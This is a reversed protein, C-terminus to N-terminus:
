SQGPRRGPRRSARGSFVVPGFHEYEEPLIGNVFYGKRFDEIKEVL